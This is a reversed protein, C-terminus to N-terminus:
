KRQQQRSRRTALERVLFVFVMFGFALFIWPTFGTTLGIPPLNKVGVTVQQTVQGAQAASVGGSAPLHLLTLLYQRLLSLVIFGNVAGLTGGLLRSLPSLRGEDLTRRGLAYSLLILLVTALILFGYPNDVSFISGVTTNLAGVTGTGARKLFASLFAKTVASAITIIRQTLAPQALMVVLAMLLVTTLAERLWGRTFGNFAFLGIVIYTLVRYDIDVVPM